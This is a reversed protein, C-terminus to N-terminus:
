AASRSGPAFYRALLAEIQRVLASPGGRSASRAQQGVLPAGARNIGDDAVVPVMAHSNVARAGRLSFTFPDRDHKTDSHM